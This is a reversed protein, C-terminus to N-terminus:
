IAKFHLSFVAGGGTNETIELRGDAERMMESVQALGLGTGQGEPKTTFFPELIKKRLEPPIGPGTDAVSVTTEEGDVSTAISISGSRNMADRANVVLNVLALEFHDRNARVCVGALPLDINVKVGQGAAQELLYRMDTLVGSIDIEELGEAGTRVFTLLRNTLRLGREMIQGIMVTYKLVKPDDSQRSIMNLGSQVAAAINRFDHVVTSTFIQVAEAKQSEMIRRDERRRASIDKLVYVFLAGGLLIAALSGIVLAFTAKSQPVDLLSNSIAVHASWGTLESTTYATYNTLGEYTKGAYISRGGKSVADRVFQTAPTGVRESFNVSRAVFNGERDVIAAVADNPFLGLLISQYVKPDIKATLVFNPLHPLAVQIYICPCMPAAREVGGISNKFSAATKPLDETKSLKVDTRSVEFKVEGTIANRLTVSIWGPLLDLSEQTRAIAVSPDIDEFVRSQSLLQLSTVDSIARADSLLVMLDAADVAMHEAEKVHEKAVSQFVLGLALVSPILMAGAVIVLIRQISSMNGSNM